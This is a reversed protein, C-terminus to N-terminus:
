SIVETFNLKPKRQKTKRKSTYSGWVLKESIAHM